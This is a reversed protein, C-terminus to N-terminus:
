GNSSEEENNPAAASRAAARSVKVLSPRLTRSGLRYGKQLTELVTQDEVDDREESVVAQHLNPDFVQGDSEIEALGEQALIGTMQRLILRLGEGLAAVDGSTELASLARELNDLLPLLGGVIGERVVFRDDALSQERRRKYNEFDAQMRLMQERLGAIREERERLAARLGEVDGSGDEAEVPKDPEVAETPSTLGSEDAM